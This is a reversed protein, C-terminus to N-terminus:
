SRESWWISPGAKQAIAVVPSDTKTIEYKVNSTNTNTNSSNSASISEIKKDLAVYTVASGILGGIIAVVLVVIFQPMKKKEKIFIKDEM